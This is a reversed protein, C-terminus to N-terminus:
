CICLSSQCLIGWICQHPSYYVSETSWWCARTEVQFCWATLTGLLWGVASPSSTSLYWKRSTGPQPIITLCQAGCREGLPVPAGLPVRSWNGQAITKKIVGDTNVAKGNRDQKGAVRIPHKGLGSEWIFLKRKLWQRLIQKQPQRALPLSAGEMLNRSRHLKVTTGQLKVPVQARYSSTKTILMPGLSEVNM